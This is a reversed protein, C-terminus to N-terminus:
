LKLISFNPYEDKPSFNQLILLTFLSKRISVLNLSMSGRLSRLLPWSNLYSQGPFIQPHNEQRIAYIGMVYVPSGCPKQPHWTFLLVSLKILFSYLYPSILFSKYLCSVPSLAICGSFYAIGCSFLIVGFGSGCICLASGLAM